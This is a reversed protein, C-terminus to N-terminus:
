KIDGTNETFVDTYAHSPDPFDSSKGFKVAEDIEEEIKAEIEKIKGESLIDEELLKRRFKDIPDKKRWEEVEKKERYHEPDGEFHGRYRYTLCEILSPGRGERARTVAESTTDFVDMVDMGDVTTGPIGFAKANESLKEINRAKHLPTMEGYLNNECIFIVPLDWVSALNVSEHFSGQATAGDGFFCLTVKGNKLLYSSLAAGVSLPFGGGVIGNAGLMASNFGAIHMSGGKGKCYGNKRGFLEAMMYKTKLGKAICHGHGRHTSIIYDDSKIAACAGVAVAEEGIYLHANGPLEGDAFLDRTREEFKRIRVMKEFMDTLNPM